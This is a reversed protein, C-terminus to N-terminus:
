LKVYKRFASVTQVALFAFIVRAFFDLLGTLPHLASLDGFIELKHTPNIFSAFINFNISM